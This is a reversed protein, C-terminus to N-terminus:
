CKVLFYLYYQVYSYIVGMSCYVSTILLPLFPLKVSLGLLSHIFNDYFFILLLGLLYLTELCNLLPLTCKDLQFPYLQCVSYFCYSTYILFLLLKVFVLEQPFILPFLSFHGVTSLFLFIKADMKELIALISLPLIAMLIAKEHVHWGFLFSTLACLVLSRVFNIKHNPSKWLKVLAPIMFLVILIMTTLPAISPLVTHSFEQVLGGTMSAIPKMINLGTKTMALTALKDAFNYFAWINPAWYAHCLGRKFPFM